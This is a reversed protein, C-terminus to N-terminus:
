ATPRGDGAVVKVAAGLVTLAMGLKWWAGSLFGLLHQSPLLKGAISGLLALAGLVLLGWCVNKV